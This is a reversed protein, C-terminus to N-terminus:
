PSTPAPEETAAALADLKTVTNWNRATTRTGLTKDILAPTLRSRGIGDPYVVYAHRGTGQVRERGVIASSLAKWRDVPPSDKLALLVLHSPDAAAEQPFPNGSVIARWEEASRVFFDIRVHLDRAVGEELKREWEFPRGKGSRFVVNGSQLLTQVDALGMRTLTTRLAEMRLPSSGGVNVGRLLGIFVTMVASRLAGM